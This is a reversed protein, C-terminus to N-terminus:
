PQDSLVPQQEPVQPVQPVLPPNDLTNQTSQYYGQKDMQQLLELRRSISMNRQRKVYAIFQIDYIFYNYDYLYIYSQKKKLIENLIFQDNYSKFSVWGNKYQNMKDKLLNTEYAQQWEDLLIKLKPHNMNYLSFSLDCHNAEEASINGAVLVKNLHLFEEIPKDMDLIITAAELYVVWDYKESQLIEQLLYIKNFAAFAAFKDQGKKIGDWRLYDYGHKRCYAEHKPQSYNLLPSYDDGDCTQLVLIRLM